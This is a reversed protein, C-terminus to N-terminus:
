RARCSRGGENWPAAFEDLISNHTIDDLSSAQEAEIDGDGDRELSFFRIAVASDGREAALNLEHTLLYDHSAIFVQVGSAALQVLMEKVM